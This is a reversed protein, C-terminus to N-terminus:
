VLFILYVMLRVGKVFASIKLHFTKVSFIKIKLLKSYLYLQKKKLDLSESEYVCVCVCLLSSRM